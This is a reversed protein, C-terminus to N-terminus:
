FPIDDYDFFRMCLNLRHIKTANKLIELKFFKNDLDERFYLFNPNCPKGIIIDWIKLTNKNIFIYTDNSFIIKKDLNLISEELYTFINGYKYICRVKLNNFLLGLKIYELADKLPIYDKYGIDIESSRILLSNSKPLELIKFLNVNLLRYKLDDLNDINLYTGILNFKNKLKSYLLKNVFEDNLSEKTLKLFESM